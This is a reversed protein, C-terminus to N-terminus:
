TMNRLFSVIYMGAMGENKPCCFLKMKIKPLLKLFGTTFSKGEAMECYVNDINSMDGQPAVESEGLLFLIGVSHCSSLLCFKVTRPEQKKNLIFVGHEM